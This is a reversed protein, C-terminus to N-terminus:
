KIILEKSLKKSFNPQKKGGKKNTQKNKFGRVVGQSICKPYGGWREGQGQNRMREHSMAAVAGKRKGM